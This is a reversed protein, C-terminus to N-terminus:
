TGQEWCYTKMSSLLTEKSKWRGRLPLGTNESNNYENEKVNAKVGDMM